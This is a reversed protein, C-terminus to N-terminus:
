EVVGDVPSPFDVDVPDANEAVPQPVPPEPQPAEEALRQLISEPLRGEVPLDFREVIDKQAIRDFEALRFSGYEQKKLRAISAGRLQQEGERVIQAPFLAGNSERTLVGKLVSSRVGRPPDVPPLEGEADVHDSLADDSGVVGDTRDDDADWGVWFDGDSERSPIEQEKRGDIGRRDADFDRTGVGVWKELVIHFPHVRLAKWRGGQCFLVSVVRPGIVGGFLVRESKEFPSSRRFSPDTIRVVDGYSISPVGSPWGFMCANPSRGISNHVVDNLANAVGPLVAPWMFFLIRAQLLFKNLLSIFTSNAREVFAQVEPTGPPGFENDVGENECVWLYGEEGSFEGGNDSRVILPKGFGAVEWRRIWSLRLLHREAHDKSRLAKLSVRCFKWDVIVSVYRFGGYGKKKIDKINHYIIRNFKESPRRDRSSSEEDSGESEDDGGVGSPAEEAGARKRKGRKKAKWGRHKLRRRRFNVERCARCERRVDRCEQLSYSLGVGKERLTLLLREGTAHALHSHLVYLLHKRNEASFSTEDKGEGACASFFCSHLSKAPQVAMDASRRLYASAVGWRDKVETEFFPVFPVSGSQNVPAVFRNGDIDTLRLWNPRRSEGGLYLEKKACAFLARGVSSHIVAKEPVLRVRGTKDKVPLHCTKVKDSQLGAVDSALRFQVTRSEESVVFKECCPPLLSLSCGSDTLRSQCNDEEEGIFAVLFAEVPHVPRNEVVEDFEDDAFKEANRLTARIFGGRGAARRSNARREPSSSSQGRSAPISVFGFQCLLLVDRGM